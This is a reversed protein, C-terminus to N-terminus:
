EPFSFLGTADLIYAVIGLIIPFIGMTGFFSILLPGIAFGLTISLNYFAIAKGRNNNNSVINVWTDMTMWMIGGLIGMILHCIAIMIPYFFTFM